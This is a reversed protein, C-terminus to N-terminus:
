QIIMTSWQHHYQHSKNIIKVKSSKDLDRLDIWNSYSTCDKIDFKNMLSERKYLGFRLKPNNKTLEKKNDSADEKHDFGGVIKKTTIEVVYFPYKKAKGVRVVKGGNKYSLFVYFKGDEIIVYQNELDKAIADYDVQLFPLNNYDSHGYGYDDLWSELDNDLKSYIEDYIIEVADERYMASYKEDLGDIVEQKQEIVEELESIEKMTTDYEYGEVNNAYTELSSIKDNLDDIESELKSKESDYEDEKGVLEVIDYADMNDVREDAEEGSLIRKDTDSVYMESPTPTYIGESVMQEAFDTLRDYSGYYKDNMDSLASSLSDAQTYAIYEKVVSFPYDSNKYDDYSELIEDFESEGMYEDYLNSGYGEYDAFMYEERNGGKENNLKEMM